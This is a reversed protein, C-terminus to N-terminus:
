KGLDVFCVGVTKRVANHKAVGLGGSREHQLDGAIDVAFGGDVEFAVLGVVCDVPPQSVFYEVDDVVQAESSKICHKNAGEVWKLRM